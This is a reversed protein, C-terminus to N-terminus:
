SVCEFVSIQTVNSNSDDVEVSFLTLKKIQFTNKDVISANVLDKIKM